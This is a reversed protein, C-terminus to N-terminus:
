IVCPVDLALCIKSILILDFEIVSQLKEFVHIITCPEVRAGCSINMATMRGEYGRSYSIGHGILDKIFCLSDNLYTQIAGTMTKYPPTTYLKICHNERVDSLNMSKLALVEHIFTATKFLEKYM